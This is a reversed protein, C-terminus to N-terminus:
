KRFMSGGMRGFDPLVGMSQRNAQRGLPATNSSGYGHLGSSTTARGTNVSSSYGHRNLWPLLIGNGGLLRTGNKPESSRTTIPFDTARAPEAVALVGALAALAIWRRSM